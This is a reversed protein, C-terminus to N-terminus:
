YVPAAWRINSSGGNGFGRIGTPAPDTDPSMNGPSREFALLAATRDFDTPEPGISPNMISLRSEVHLYGLAHGLEHIRLLRRRDDDRDFTRDLFMSGGIVTGDAEEAWRGYGITGALSMIGNYRGVVIAGSRMVTVRENAQPREVTVNAFAGFTNGTLLALGETLHATLLSVEDDTMQEATAAYEDAPGHYSMISAVIVLSPRATWRQLRNNATRCMEDFAHLDFSAPILTLRLPESVPASLRTKREVIASGQVTTDYTGAGYVETKFYGSGDTTVIPASQIQVTVGSAAAGDVANVAQGQVLRDPSIESPSAPSKACSGNAAVAFGVLLAAPLRM